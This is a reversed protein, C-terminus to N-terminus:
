IEMNLKKRLEEAKKANTDEYTPKLNDIEEKIRVKSLSINSMNIFHEFWELSDDEDSLSYSFSNKLFKNNDVSNIIFLVDRFRKYIERDIENKPIEFGLNELFIESSYDGNIDLQGKMRRSIIHKLEGIHYIRKVGTKIDHMELQRFIEDSTLDKIYWIKVDKLNNYNKEYHKLDRELNRTDLEVQNGKLM